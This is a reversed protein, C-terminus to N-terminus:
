WEFIAVVYFIYPVHFVKLNLWSDIWFKGIILTWIIILLIASKIIEWAVEWSLSVLIHKRSCITGWCWFVWTSVCGLVIALAITVSCPGPILCVLSWVFGQWAASTGYIEVLCINISVQEVMLLNWLKRLHGMALVRIVSWLYTFGRLLVRVVVLVLGVIGRPLVHVEHALGAVGLSLVRALPTLLVVLRILQWVQVLYTVSHHSLGIAVVRLHNGGELGLGVLPLGYEVIHLIAVEFRWSDLVGALLPDVQYCLRGVELIHNVVVFYLFHLLGWYKRLYRFAWDTWGIEM